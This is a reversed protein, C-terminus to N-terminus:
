ATQLLACAALPIVQFGDSRAPSGAGAAALAYAAAATAFVAESGAELAILAALPAAVVSAFGNAAWAWAVRVPDRAALRRLGLPFPMGMVFALPALLLAAALVRAWLASAELVHVLSLLGLALAGCTIALGLAFGRARAPGLRDSWLSGAGSGILMAALVAAVAYVPHGLLLTLQQIAAIEALLYALGLASFYGVLAGRGRGGVKGRLLLAPIALLLAALVVGEALTALVAIYGWEAFPLWEGRGRELMLDLARRGLFSHPYPRADTAPRVDFPYAAAFRAASDQGGAAARVAEFLVPAEVLNFRAAPAVLGPRWDVDFWRDATWRAIRDLDAASFGDPKVLTTVTGWSRVVVLGAAPEAHGLRRLAAAATLVSRVEPRPPVTLWTTVALVGGPRLAELCQVYGEVTQLFDERLSVMGAGPGSGGFPGLTVLDYRVKTHALFHRPDGVHWTVPTNPKELGEGPDARRALAAVGPQLEVATIQGPGHALATAVEHAGGPTLLLVREPRRLAYPLSTPQWDLLERSERSWSAVAGALEGDVFLATQPPFEGQYGLSLGPALRFAPAAVAVVWGTASTREALVRAAPFARVQALGKYPLLELRWPPQVASVSAGCLLIAALARWWGPRPSLGAAAFGGAAALLPPLALAREPDLWMLVAVGALAGLGSGLFSAGYVLGPRDEEAILAALTGLAGLAFPVALLMQLILLRVGQGLDWALRTPDLPLLDAAAPVALLALPTGLAAAALWRDPQLRRRARLVALVTGSAGFGLMAVGVALYAFHHFQEIAFVRVLLVEYALTGGSLALVALPRGVRNM